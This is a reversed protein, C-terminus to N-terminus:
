LRVEYEIAGWSLSTIRYNYGRADDRNLSLGLKDIEALLSGFKHNVKVDFRLADIGLTTKNSTKHVFEEDLVQSNELCNAVTQRRNQDTAFNERRGDWCQHLGRFRCGYEVDACADTMAEDNQIISKLDFLIELKAGNDALFDRNSTVFFVSQRNGHVVKLNRATTEEFRLDSGYSEHEFWGVEELERGEPPGRPLGLDGFMDLDWQQDNQVLSEDPTFLVEPDTVLELNRLGILSACTLALCVIIISRPYKTVFEGIRTFVWEFCDNILTSSEDILSGLKAKAGKEGKSM